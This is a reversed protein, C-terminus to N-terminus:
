HTPSFVIVGGSEAEVVRVTSPWLSASEFGPL